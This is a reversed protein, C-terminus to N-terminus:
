PQEREPLWRMMINGIHILGQSAADAKMDRREDWKKIQQELDFNFSGVTEHYVDVDSAKCYSLVADLKLSSLVFYGVVGEREEARSLRHPQMGEEIHRRWTGARCECMGQVDWEVGVCGIM